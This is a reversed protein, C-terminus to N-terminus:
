YGFVHNLSFSTLFGDFKISFFYKFVVSQWPCNSGSSCLFVFHLNNVPPRGSLFELRGIVHDAHNPEHIEQALLIM